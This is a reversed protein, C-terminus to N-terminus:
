FLKFKSSIEQMRQEQVGIHEKRLGAKITHGSSPCTRAYRPSRFVRGCGKCTSRLWYRQHRAKRAPNRARRPIGRTTKSKQTVPM